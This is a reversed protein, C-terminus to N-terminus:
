SVHESDFSHSVVGVPTVRVHKAVSLEQSRLVDCEVLTEFCLIRPHRVGSYANSSLLAKFCETRPQM